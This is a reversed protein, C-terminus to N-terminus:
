VTRMFEVTVGDSSMSTLYKGSGFLHFGCAAISSQFRQLDFPRKDEPVSIRLVEGIPANSIAARIFDTLEGHRGFSPRAIRTRKKKDSFPPPPPPPPAVPEQPAVVIEEALIELVSSVISRYQDLKQLSKRASVWDKKQVNETLVKVQENLTAVHKDILM